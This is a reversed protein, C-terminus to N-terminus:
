DDIITKCNEFMYLYEITEDIGKYKGLYLQYKQYNFQRNLETLNPDFARKQYILYQNEYKDRHKSLTEIM